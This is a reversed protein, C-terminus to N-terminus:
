RSLTIIQMSHVYVVLICTYITRVAATQIYVLMIYRKYFTNIIARHECMCSHLFILEQGEKCMFRARRQRFGKLM